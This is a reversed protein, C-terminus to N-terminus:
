TCVLLFEVCCSCCQGFFYAQVVTTSIITIKCAVYTVFM